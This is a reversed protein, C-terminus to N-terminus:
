GQMAPVSGGSSPLGADRRVFWEIVAKMAVTGTDDVVEVPVKLLLRGHSHLKALAARCDTSELLVRARARGVLPQRFKGDVRRVLPVYGALLDAAERLLFQASGAEAVALLAAAHMTGVHNCLEPSNALSVVYESGPPEAQLGLLRNFPLSAIEM